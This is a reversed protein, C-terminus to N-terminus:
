RRVSLAGEALVALAVIFAAVPLSLLGEARLLVLVGAIGGVWAGRRIARAWDGHYAIRRQRRFAALWWLPVSTLGLAAGMAAAGIGAVVPAGRPDLTLVIGAVVLWALAAAGFLSLNARRDFAEM